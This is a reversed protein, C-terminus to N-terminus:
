QYIVKSGMASLDSEYGNADVATVAFFHEGGTLGTLVYESAGGQVEYVQDLSGDANSHYVLYMSLDTANLKSGDVRTAPAKWSLRAARDVVVSLNALESVLAGTENSVVVDYIGADSQSLGSLTLHPLVAGSLPQGDKRWQYKLAGTGSAAVNLTYSSGAYATGGMPQLSIVVDLEPTAEVPAAEVTLYAKGTWKFTQEDQIRVQFYGEDAKAVSAM